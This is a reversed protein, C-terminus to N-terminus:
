KQLLLHTIPYAIKVRNDEFNGPILLSTRMYAIHNYISAARHYLLFQSKPNSAMQGNISFPWSQEEIAYPTLFALARPISGGAQTEHFLLDIDHVHESLRAVLLAGTLNFVHYFFNDSREMEIPQSGDPAFQTLMRDQYRLLSLRLSIETDSYIALLANLLDYFTGHNNRAEKEQIGVPHTEMWTVFDIAWKQLSEQDALTWFSSSELLGASDIIRIFNLAARAVPFGIGMAEPRNPDVKGYTM